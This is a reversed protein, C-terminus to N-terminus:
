RPNHNDQKWQKFDKLKIRSQYHHLLSRVSDDMFLEPLNRFNNSYIHVLAEDFSGNCKEKIYNLQKDWNFTLDKEESFFRYYIYDEPMLLLRNFEDLNKGFAKEFFDLKPMVAGHTVNLIVQITRLYKRNWHKGIFTRDKANIPIYKMPFSFIKLDLEKNLDINIRLREYLDKPTDNFNYLVYNSLEKIGFESALRIKEEYIKKYRIDDFAIRLPRINIESLRKMKARSLLRADIGQNFDIFRNRPSKNRYKEYIPNLLPFASQFKTIFRKGYEKNDDDFLGFESIYSQFEDFVEQKKLRKYPFEKLLNKIKNEAISDSYHKRLRNYYIELLNPLRFKAGKEFGLEIIEDIIQDFHKSALVNNDMLLLNHKEGYRQNIEQIQKKLPLYDNYIPELFPVACFKCKNSCGRTMYSIYSNNTPYIYDVSDLIDYDPTLEDIIINDKKGLSDPKDLLGKIPVIGTEEILEDFMTTALIGGVFFNKTKKVSRKYFQITEITKKWYFSFLTTVYIINWLRKWIELQFENTQYINM